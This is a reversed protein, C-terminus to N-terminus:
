RSSGNWKKNKVDLWGQSAALPWETTELRPTELLVLLTGDSSALQQPFEYKADDETPLKELESFAPFAVQVFPNWLYELM